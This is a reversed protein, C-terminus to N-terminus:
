APAAVRRSQLWAVYAVLAVALAAELLIFFHIRASIAFFPAFRYHGLVLLSAAAYAYLVVAGRHIQGRKFLLYGVLALPTMIFWFADVLKANLWIPEPYSHFYCVNDSYHFITAIVNTVLLWLLLRQRHATFQSSPM